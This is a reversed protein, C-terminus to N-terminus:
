SFSCPANHFQVATEKKDRKGFYMRYNESYLAGKEITSYSFAMKTQNPPSCHQIERSEWSLSPDSKKWYYKKTPRYESNAFQALLNRKLFGCNVIQAASVPSLKSYCLM